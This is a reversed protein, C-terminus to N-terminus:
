VRVTKKRNKSPKLFYFFPANPVFNVEKLRKLFECFLLPFMLTTDKMNSWISLFETFSILLLQGSQLFAEAFAKCFERTFM